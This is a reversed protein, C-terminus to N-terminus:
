KISIIDDLDKERLYKDPVIKFEISGSKLEMKYYEVESILWEKADEISSCCVKLRGLLNGSDSEAAFDIQVVM